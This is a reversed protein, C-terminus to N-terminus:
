CKAILRARGLSGCVKTDSVQGATKEQCEKAHGGVRQLMQVPAINAVVHTLTKKVKSSPEKISNRIRNGVGEHKGAADSAGSQSPIYRSGAPPIGKPIPPAKRPSEFAGASAEWSRSPTAQPCKNKQNENSGHSHLPENGPLPWCPQVSGSSGIARAIKSIKPSPAHHSASTTKQPLQEVTKRQASSIGSRLFIELTRVSEACDM